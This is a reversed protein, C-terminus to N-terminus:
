EEINLEEEQRKFDNDKELITNIYDRSVTMYDEKRNIKTSLYDSTFILRATNNKLLLLNLLADLYESNQNSIEFANIYNKFLIHWMSVFKDIDEFKDAVLLFILKLTADLIFNLDGDTVLHSEDGNMCSELDTITNKVADRIDFVDSTLYGLIDGNYDCFYQKVDEFSVENIKIM